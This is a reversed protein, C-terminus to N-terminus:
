GRGERALVFCLWAAFIAGAIIPPWLSPLVQLFTM